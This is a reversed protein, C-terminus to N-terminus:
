QVPTVREDGPALAARIGRKGRSLECRGGAYLMTRLAGDDLVAPGRVAVEGRPAFVPAGVRVFRLGDFSAAASISSTAGLGGDM